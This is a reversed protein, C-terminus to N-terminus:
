ASVNALPMATKELAVPAAFAAAAMTVVSSASVARWADRSDLVAQLVSDPPTRPLVRWAITFHRSLNGDVFLRRHAPPLVIWRVHGVCSLKWKVWVSVTGHPRAAIRTRPVSVPKYQQTVVVWRRMLPVAVKLRMLEPIQRAIWSVCCVSRNAGPSRIPTKAVGPIPIATAITLFRCAPLVSPKSRLV